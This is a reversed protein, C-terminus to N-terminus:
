LKPTFADKSPDNMGTALPAAICAYLSITNTSDTLACGTAIASIALGGAVASVAVGTYFVSYNIDISYPSSQSLATYDTLKIPYQVVDTSSATSELKDNTKVQFSMSQGNPETYCTDSSASYLEDQCEADSFFSVIDGPVLNTLIVSKTPTSTTLNYCSITPLDRRGFEAQGTCNVDSAFTLDLGFVVGRFFAIAVIILKM